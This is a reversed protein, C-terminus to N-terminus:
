CRIQHYKGLHSFGSSRTLIILNEGDEFINIVRESKLISNNSILKSEGDKVIYIGEDAVHYYIRDNVKFIKYIINAATIIKFTETQTNYFYISDNSQFIVWENYDIINWIQEDELSKKNLKSTLSIYDLTGFDNKLWYGFEAYCGTYIKDGIVKVARIITNNPSNYTIWESGNYELLGKNNAVYIYDNIGQSIMWNQNDGMYNETTFKAIPPLEQAFSM